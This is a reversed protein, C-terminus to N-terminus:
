AAKDEQLVEASSGSGSNNNQCSKLLDYRERRHQSQIGTDVNDNM